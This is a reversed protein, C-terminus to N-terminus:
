QLKMAVKSISVIAAVAAADRGRDWDRKNRPESPKPHLTKPNPAKPKLEQKRIGLFQVFCELGFDAYLAQHRRM